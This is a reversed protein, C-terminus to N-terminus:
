SRDTVPKNSWHSLEAIRSAPEGSSWSVTEPEAELVYGAYPVSHILNPGGAASLARRLRVICATVAGEDLDPNDWVQELLQKRSFVVTPHEMFHRLLKLQLPPVQVPAGNRKARHRDLDLELDAYRLIHREGAGFRRAVAKLRLLFERSDVPETWCDDAGAELFNLRGQQTTEGALAFLPLRSTEEVSRFSRCLQISGAVDARADVLVLDPPSRVALKLAVSGGDCARVQLGVPAVARLIDRGSGRDSVLLLSGAMLQASESPM